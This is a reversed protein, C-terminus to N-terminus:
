VCFGGSCVGSACQPGSTCPSGSALLSAAQAISPAVISQVLPIALSAGVAIGLQKLMRRRSRRLTETAIGEPRLVLHASELDAVALEVLEPTGSLGAKALLAVAEDITTRGDCARFVLAATRNLCHAKKRRTDYVLLEDPLEEIVLDANSRSKPLSKRESVM